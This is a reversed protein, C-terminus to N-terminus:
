AKKFFYFLNPVLRGGQNKAYNKFFFIKKNYEILRGLKMTQNGKHQSINTLIYIAIVNGPQSTMFKATLGIKRILGNKSCSWFAM